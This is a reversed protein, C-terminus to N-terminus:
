DLAGTDRRSNAGTTSELVAAWLGDVSTPAPHDMQAHGAGSESLVLGGRGTRGARARAWPNAVLRDASPSGATSEHLAVRLAGAQDSVRDGVRSSAPALILRGPSAEGAADPGTLHGARDNGLV